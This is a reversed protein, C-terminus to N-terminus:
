FVVTNDDIFASDIVVKGKKAKEVGGIVVPDHRKLCEMAADVAKIDVAVMFGTGCNFKRYMDTDELPENIVHSRKKIEHFIPHPEQKRGDCYFVYKGTHDLEKLKSWGGGTIHVLGHVKDDLKALMERLEKYYIRTPKTLEEGVTQGRFSWPLDVGLAKDLENDSNEFSVGLANAAVIIPDIDMNPQARAKLMTENLRVPLGYTDRAFTLGNSHIGSSRLSIIADGDKVQSIRPPCASYGSMTVGMEFGRMTDCTATEGGTIVIEYRKCYHKLGEVLGRKAKDDDEGIVIHSQLKYPTMGHEIQDDIVMAIADQAAGYLIEDESKWRRWHLLAKTGIGDTMDMHYKKPKETYAPRKGAWFINMRHKPANVWTEEILKRIEDGFPKTPNYGKTL